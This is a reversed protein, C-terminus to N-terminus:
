APEGAKVGLPKPAMGGGPKLHFEYSMLHWRGSAKTGDPMTPDTRPEVRAVLDDKVGFVVDSDLYKDGDMFVHTILPEYGKANVLFHVHAPRMPHRGTQVIMEGVPGDTPIPYSCPLITRFFFRGDDDTIFRARASAGVEDYNAKQSDYFGDDDAHWVDVPVNALPKGKLDTVRSQVFMREGTQNNPSIDTGHATVKHEGVYFPGLVTTQTAGERDRHNVADVLMSVGLVDSLLIFEQRTDTCKQGTRTLFDIAYDWEEFTLGTRSVYDHLSKVLEQLLFKARPNPTSDFSRVVAETLDTENFQTM